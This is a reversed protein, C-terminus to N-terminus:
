NMGIAHACALRCGLSAFERALALGFGRSGGTILVVQSALTNRRARTRAASLIAIATTAAGIAYATTRAYRGMGAKLRGEKLLDGAVTRLAALRDRRVGTPNAM